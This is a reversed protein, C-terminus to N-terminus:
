ALSAELDAKLAEILADLDPDIKRLRQIKKIGALITTHDRGGFRGAIQPLSFPTMEKSLLYGVQRPRVIDAARRTSDIETVSVDFQKAVAKKIDEIRPFKRKPKPNHTPQEARVILDFFWMAHHWPHSFTERKTEIWRRIGPDITDPEPVAALSAPKVAPKTSGFFNQRRYKREAIRERPTLRMYPDDHVLETIAQMAQM